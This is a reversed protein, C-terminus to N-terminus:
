ILAYRRLKRRLYPYSEEIADKLWPEPNEPLFPRVEQVEDAYEIRINLRFGRSTITVQQDSNISRYRDGVVKGPQLARLLRGTDINIPPDRDQLAEKKTIRGEQIRRRTQPNLEGRQLRKYIRRSESLPAWKVGLSDSRGRSKIQFERHVRKLYHFAIWSHFTLRIDEDQLPTPRKKLRYLKRYSPIRM